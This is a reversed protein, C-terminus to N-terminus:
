NNLPELKNGVQKKTAAGSFHDLGLFPNGKRELTDSFLQSQSVISLAEWLRDKKKM